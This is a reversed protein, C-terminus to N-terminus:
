IHILSLYLLKGTYIQVLDNEPIGLVPSTIQATLAPDSIETQDVVITVAAVSKALQIGNVDTIDGRPALLVSTRRLESNARNSYNGAQVVQVNLLQVVIITFILAVSGMLYYIRKHIEAQSKM